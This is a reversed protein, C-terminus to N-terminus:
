FLATEMEVWCKPSNNMSQYKQHKPAMQAFDSFFDTASASSISPQGGLDAPTERGIEDLVEADLQQSSHFVIPETIVVCKTSQLDSSGNEGKPAAKCVSPPLLESEKTARPSDKTSGTGAPGEHGVMEKMFRGQDGLYQDLAIGYAVASSVGASVELERAYAEVKARAEAANSSGANATAPAEVGPELGADPGLSLALFYGAKHALLKAAIPQCVSLADAKEKETDRAADKHIGKQGLLNLNPAEEDEDTSSYTKEENTDNLIEEGGPQNTPLLAPVPELQPQNTALAPVPELQATVVCTEENVTTLGKKTKPCNNPLVAVMPALQAGVEVEMAVNQVQEPQESAKTKKGGGGVSDKSTSLATNNPPLKIPSLSDRM